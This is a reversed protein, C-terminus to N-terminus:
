EYTQCFCAIMPAYKMGPANQPGRWAFPAKPAIFLSFITAKMFRFLRNTAIPETAATTNKTKPAQVSRGLASGIQAPTVLSCVSNPGQHGTARTTTTAGGSTASSSCAGLALPLCLAGLLPAAM